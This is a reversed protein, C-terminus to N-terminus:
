TLRNDYMVMPQLLWNDVCLLNGYPQWGEGIRNNIANDLELNNEVAITYYKIIRKM